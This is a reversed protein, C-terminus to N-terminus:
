RPLKTTDECISAWSYKNKIGQHSARMYMTDISLDMVLVWGSLVFSKACTCTPLSYVMYLNIITNGEEASSVFARKSTNVISQVV